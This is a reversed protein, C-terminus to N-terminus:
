RVPFRYVVLSVTGPDASDGADDYGEIILNNPGETAYSLIRASLGFSAGSQPTVVCLGDTQDLPEVLQVRFVGVGVRTLKNEVLGVQPGIVPPNNLALLAMAHVRNETEIAM